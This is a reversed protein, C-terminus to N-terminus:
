VSSDITKRLLDLQQQYQKWKAISSKYLPLRIQSSSATTSVFRQQHYNLCDISWDLDCFKFLAKTTPEPKEIIDEYKIVHIKKPLLKHWHQMLDKYLLYYQGLEDLQYSFPYGTEFLNKFIAYCADMPDREVCVIKSQPLASAIAGINIYNLPLKDIFRKTSGLLQNSVTNVYTQGLNAFNIQQVDGKAEVIAKQVLRPFLEIEGASVLEKQTLLIQEVLTSGVRPLGLLFIPSDSIYSHPEQEFFAKNFHQKLNTHLQKDQEINYSVQQRKLRAGESLAEFAQEFEETDELEKALAYYCYYRQNDQLTQKQLLDKLSSVHNKHATQTRLSSRLHIAQTDNPNLEIAKDLWTEALDIEGNFRFSTALNYCIDASNPMLEYARNFFQIAMNHAELVQAAFGLDQCLSSDNIDNLNVENLLQRGEVWQDLQHLAKCKLVLLHNRDGTCKDAHNLAQLAVKPNKIHLAIETTTLWGEFSEPYKRNLQQSFGIARKVYGQKVSNWIANRYQALESATLSMTFQYYISFYIFCLSSYLYDKNM